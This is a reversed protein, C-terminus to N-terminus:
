YEPERDGRFTLELLIIQSYHAHMENMYIIEAM